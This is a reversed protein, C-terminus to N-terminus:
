NGDNRAGTGPTNKEIVFASCRGTEDKAYLVTEGFTSFRKTGNIVHSDGKLVATTLLAKPNSGTGEETFQISAYASGECLPALYKEKIEDSGFQFISAPISNHFAPRWWAGTGSYAIQECALIADLHSGEQGGYKKLLAIGFLGLDGMKRGLSDPLREEEDIQTAIPEIERETFKKVASQFSRQEETLDFNM